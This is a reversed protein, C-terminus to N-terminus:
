SPSLRGRLLQEVAQKVLAVAAPLNRMVLEAEVRLVRYGLRRLKEDRRADATRRGEHCRGDVEVVLCLVPALFDVIYRDALVVQRRFYVGLKGAALARGLRQEPTNLSARHRRARSRLLLKRRTDFPSPHATPFSRM